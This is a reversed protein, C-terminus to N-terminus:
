EHVSPFGFAVGPRSLASASAVWFQTGVSDVSPNASLFAQIQQEAEELEGRREHYVALALRASPVQNQAIMLEERADPAGRDLLILGLLFHSKPVNRDLELAKRVAREGGQLDGIQCLAFGLNAFNVALSPAWEVAVKLQTVAAYPQGVKLYETGLMGRASPMLGGDALGRKLVQIATDHDGSQVYRVARKLLSLESKSLPNRLERVSVTGAPGQPESDAPFNPINSALKQQV